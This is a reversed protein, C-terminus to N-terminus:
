LLKRIDTFQFSPRELEVRITRIEIFEQERRQIRMGPISLLFTYPKGSVKQELLDFSVIGRTWGGDEKITHLERLIVRADRDSLRQGAAMRYPSHNRYVVQIHARDYAIPVRVDFYVPNEVIRLPKEKKRSEEYEIRDLPRLRGINGHLEGGNYEFTITGAFPINANLIFISFASLAISIVSYHIVRRM